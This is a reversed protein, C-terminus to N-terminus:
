KCALGGERYKYLDSNETTVEYIRKSHLYTLALKAPNCFQGLKHRAFAPIRLCRQENLQVVAITSTNLVSTAVLRWGCTENFTCFLTPM